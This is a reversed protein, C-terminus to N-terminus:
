IRERACSEWIVSCIMYVLQTIKKLGVPFPVEMKVWAYDEIEAFTKNELHFDNTRGGHAAYDM